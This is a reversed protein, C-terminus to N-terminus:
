QTGGFAGLFNSFTGLGALVFGFNFRRDSPLPIGASVPYNFQQYEVLLGCCQAMYSMMMTQSVVYSRKIDWSLGYTGTVRGNALTLTNSGTVYESLLTTKSSRVRSYNFSATSLTSSISAGASITALGVGTVDYEIRGDASMTAAPSFRVNVTIPSLDVDDRGSASYYQSDFPSAVPNSYYTQRVGVTLVERATARVTGESRGRAFLRNNVGYTLQTSQGVIVDSNDSLIPVQAFVDIPTVYDISFTPEIVHKMRERSTSDPTDWIKSLVPGVVDSRLALYTRTLPEPVVLKRSDTSHSYYTNRFSASSNVTLYTLGSLPIRVSPAVDMRTLSKDQTVIGKQITKYPLYAYEANVSGYVPLGFLQQPAVASSIRPTAGYLTSSDLDSFTETRQYSANATLGGWSGSVGAEIARVPSSSRYLSQQYLQQSIIDSAYDLRARARVTQSLSHVVTGTLEYSASAAITRAVGETVYTAEKQSFRRVRVNGASGGGAEYRYEAGLGQGAKTFWDHVFTADHSRGIAWFFGNSITQGRLTSNGYTPMLFGTSRQDDRIPYYLVPLYLLPVGKVKLVMNRAIAYDDLKIVISSSVVQWRPEPQVCTTFSGRTIQYRRPGLKEITQGFFYVDPEQGGFQTLEAQDALSMVGSANHFTGTGNRLNFEIKEAAIHGESSQFVVNGEASLLADDFRIDIADAFLKSGDGLPIEADGSLRVHNGALWETKGAVADFLQRTLLLSADAPPAAPLQAAAPRVTLLCLFFSLFLASRM